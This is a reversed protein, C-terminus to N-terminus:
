AQLFAWIAENVALAQEQQLWHGAREIKVIQAQPLSQPIHETL